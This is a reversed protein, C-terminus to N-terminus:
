RQSGSSRRQPRPVGLQAKLENLKSTRLEHRRANEAVLTARKAAADNIEKVSPQPVKNAAATSPSMPEITPATDLPLPETAFQAAPPLKGVLIQELGAQQIANHWKALIQKRQEPLLHRDPVPELYLPTTSSSMAFPPQM